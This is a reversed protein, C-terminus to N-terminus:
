EEKSEKEWELYRITVIETPYMPVYASVKDYCNRSYGLMTITLTSQSAGTIFLVADCGNSIADNELARFEDEATDFDPVKMWNEPMQKLYIREFTSFPQVLEEAIPDNVCYVIMMKKYYTTDMLIRKITKANKALDEKRGRSLVFLLNFKRM